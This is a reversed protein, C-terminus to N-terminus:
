SVMEVVTRWGSFTEGDGRAVAKEEEIQAVLGDEKLSFRYRTPGDAAHQDELLKVAEELGAAGIKARAALGALVLGICSRLEENPPLTLYTYDNGEASALGIGEEM